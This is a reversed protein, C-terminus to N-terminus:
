SNLIDTRSLAGKLIESVTILAGLDEGLVRLEILPHLVTRLFFNM